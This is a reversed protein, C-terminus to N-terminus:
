KIALQNQYFSQNIFPQDISKHSVYIMMQNLLETFSDFIKEVLEFAQTRQDPTLLITQLYLFQEVNNKEGYIHGMEVDLHSKSFYRYKQHTIEQLEQGVKAFISFGVNGTAEVSELAALKLMPDKNFASIVLEYAVYRAAQTEKSWLFKLVDTFRVFPNFGMKELDELFWIWHHDDEYTHQNILSQVKNNPLEIDLNILEKRLIYKNLEGFTMVLPSIYPVWVLRQRPDISEDGLYEFF